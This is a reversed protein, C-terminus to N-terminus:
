ASTVVDPGADGASRDRFEKHVPPAKKLDALHLVNPEGEKRPVPAPQRSDTPQRVPNKETAAGTGGQQKKLSENIARRLADIDVNSKPNKREPSVDSVRPEAEAAAHNTKEADLRTPSQSQSAPDRRVSDNERMAEQPRPAIQEPSRYPPRSPASSSPGSGIAPRAPRDGAVRHHEVDQVRRPASSDRSAAGAAVPYNPGSVPRSEYPRAPFQPRAGSNAGPRLVESLRKEDRRGIKEDIAGSSEALWEGAIRTEVVARPTGYKARSNKIIVDRYSVLPTTHPPVTEASFPRSAVGDIMLKVYINAKALNVLDTQLFEPMFEKELFEGDEAGVRFTIITGVNGFIADRVKTSDGSTLQGIYQHALTLSLHYKRAESLINAFSDTAFNQFEDVYLFFDRRDKEAIDVRSMAALNLRTIIMAGLLASNDEGIKGKSLNVIFIKGTDMIERMNLASRPQGLINRILPNSVFQGVKNQIAALAETELKQSYRAFENQWFAKIVPDKLNDVIKKRYNPEAFMRLIGLLTADPLELLALLTNNLIYEMRASWADPWIKKFVGMIGSAVLHRFENGVQEMPNFAIPYEMDSPDFYIVDDLREEPIFDLIKEALEGHPDVVGVGKGARIDAIIMNELLTSKGVGTKGVVYIHRRRDDM